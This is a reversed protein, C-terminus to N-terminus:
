LIKQPNTIPLEVHQDLDHPWGFADHVHFLLQELPNKSNATHQKSVKQPSATVDDNDHNADNHHEIETPKASKKM